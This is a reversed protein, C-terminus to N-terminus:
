HHSVHQSGYNSRKLLYFSEFKDLDGGCMRILRDMDEISVSWGAQEATSFRLSNRKSSQDDSTREYQGPKGIKKFNDLIHKVTIDKLRKHSIEPVKVSDCSQKSSRGMFMDLNNFTENMDSLDPYIMKIYERRILRMAQFVRYNRESRQVKQERVVDDIAKRDKMMETNSILCYTSVTQWVAQTGVSYCVASILLHAFPAYLLVVIEAASKSGQSITFAASLSYGILCILSWALCILIGTSFHQLAM